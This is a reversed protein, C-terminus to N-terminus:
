ASCPRPPMAAAGAWDPRRLFGNSWTSLLAQLAPSPPKSPPRPPGFSSAGADLYSKLLAVTQAEACDGQHWLRRLYMEAASHSGSRVAGNVLLSLAERLKQDYRDRAEQARPEDWGQM